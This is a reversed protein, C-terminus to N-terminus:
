NACEPPGLDAAMGDPCIGNKAFQHECAHVPPPNMYHRYSNRHDGALGRIRRTSTRPLGLIWAKRATCGPRAPFLGSMTNGPAVAIGVPMVHVAVQEHM